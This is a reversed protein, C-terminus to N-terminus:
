MIDDYYPIGPLMGLFSLNKPIKIKHIGIWECHNSSSVSCEARNTSCCLSMPLHWICTIINLSIHTFVSFYFLVSVPRGGVLFSAKLWGVFKLTFVCKSTLKIMLAKKFQQNFNNYCLDHIPWKYGTTIHLTFLTVAKTMSFLASIYVYHISRLCEFTSIKWDM